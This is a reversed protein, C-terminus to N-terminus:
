EGKIQDWESPDYLRLSLAHIKENMLDGLSEYVLQHRQVRNLNLFENSIVLAEFHAGDDGVVEIHSCDIGKEIVNKIEDKNM